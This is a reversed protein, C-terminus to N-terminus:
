KTKYVSGVEQAASAFIQLWTIALKSDGTLSLLPFVTLWAGNAASIFDSNKSADLKVNFTSVVNVLDASDVITGTSLSNFASGWAYLQDSIEARDTDSTAHSISIKGATILVQKVYAQFTSDNLKNYADTKLAATKEAATATSPLASYTPAIASCGILSLIIVGLTLNKLSNKM